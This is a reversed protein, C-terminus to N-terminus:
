EESILSIARSSMTEDGDEIEKGVKVFPPLEVEGDDSQCRLVMLGQKPSLYQIVTYSLRKWLFCYRRQTIVHRNPDASLKLADYVRKNIVQKTEVEEGNSLRRVTTLGYSDSGKKEGTRDSSRSRIFTYLIKSDEEGEDSMATSLARQLPTPELNNDPVPSSKDGEYTYTTQTFPPITGIDRHELMIKEVRFVRTSVEPINTFDPLELLPFIHTKRPTAQLGVFGAISAVLREMKQEFTIGGDNNIIVHHPHGAWAKQTKADLQKAESLNEYRGVNNELTYYREAGDAATVLHLVANYRMDRAGIVDLDEDKLLEAFLEDDVYASGDMLGRDCLVVCRQGTARAYATIEDELHIQTRLVYRQFVEATGPYKGFDSPEAGCSWLLTAAEPVVFVRLGRESLYSQLRASATTKGSCPGGTLVFKFLRMDNYHISDRERENVLRSM